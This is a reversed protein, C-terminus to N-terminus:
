AAEETVGLKAAMRRLLGPYRRKDGKLANYVHNSDVDLDFSFRYPSLKRRALEARVSTALRTYDEDSMRPIRTPRFPVPPRPIGLADAIKGLTPGYGRGITSPMTARNVSSYPVGSLAAVQKCSLHDRDMRARIAAHLTTRESTTLYRTM